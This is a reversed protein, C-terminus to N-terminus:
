QTLDPHSPKNAQNDEPYIPKNNRHWEVHCEHCLWMVDTPKSYDCHHAQPKCKSGCQECQLPRKIKGDRLFNGVIIHAKRKWPNRQIFRKKAANCRERGHESSQYEKRASVTRSFQAAVIDDHDRLM